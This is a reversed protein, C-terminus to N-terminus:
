IIIEALVRAPSGDVEFKIYKGKGIFHDLPIQNLTKGGAVMHAPADIHTGVHTGLSILHDCYGDRELNGAPAIKVAPDGPYVPTQENIPVSLDIIM